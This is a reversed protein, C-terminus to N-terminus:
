DNSEYTWTDSKLHFNHYRQMAKSIQLWSRAYNSCILNVSYKFHELYPTLLKLYRIKCPEQLLEMMCNYVNQSPPYQLKSSNVKRVNSVLKSAQNLDLKTLSNQVIRNKSTCTPVWMKWHIKLTLYLIKNLLITCLLITVQFGKLQFM